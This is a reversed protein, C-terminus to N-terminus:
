LALRTRKTIFQDKKLETKITLERENKQLKPFSMKVKKEM